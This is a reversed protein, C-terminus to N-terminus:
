YLSGSNVVPQTAQESCLVVLLNSVMAARREDDLEVIGEERIRDLAMQVMGVAGEVIRSRAAVVATAQQRRLMAQAIEPAYALHTIRTELIEVGALEVRERLEVTLEEAVAAGDRLSMRESEHADYPYCTAMHRVAAEAQITVYAQYHNIAFTAKAADVVKWVIVAGIEVPNGDADNVKAPETEFNRVRKSVRTKTTFPTVMYAGAENVTGVYRGFFQLVVAENPSVAVLSSVVVATILAVAAIVVVIVGESKDGGILGAVVVAAVAWVVLLGGVVPFAPARFASREM